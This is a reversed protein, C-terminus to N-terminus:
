PRLPPQPFSEQLKRLCQASSAFKKREERFSREVHARGADFLVLAGAFEDVDDPDHTIIVAPLAFNEMMELMEHRMKERLLPDLASFPEDLLLIDPDANIARALAARQKQGGSIESPYHGALHAIGFKELMAMAKEKERADIHRGFLGSGSYATNQLVTLHPFLAYDQFMYGMRRKQPPLFINQASDFFVRGRAAIRGSDPRTLGAICNLTLSKGSGSPGFFVARRFEDGISFDIDLCFNKKGCNCARSYTKGIKLDLM